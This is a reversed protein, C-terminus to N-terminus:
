KTKKEKQQSDQFVNYNSKWLKIKICTDVM